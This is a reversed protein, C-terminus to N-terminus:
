NDDIDLIDLLSFPYTIKEKKERKKETLYKYRKGQYITLKETELFDEKGWGQRDEIAFFEYTRQYAKDADGRTSYGETWYFIGNDRQEFSGQVFTSGIKIIFVEAWKTAPVGGESNTFRGSALLVEYDRELLKEIPKHCANEESVSSM